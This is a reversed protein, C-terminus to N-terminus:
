TLFEQLCPSGMVAHVNAIHCPPSRVDAPERPAGRKGSAVSGKPVGLSVMTNGMMSSGLCLQYEKRGVSLGLKEPCGSQTGQLCKCGVEQDLSGPRGEGM